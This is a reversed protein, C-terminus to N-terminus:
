MTHVNLLGFDFVKDQTIMKNTFDTAWNHKVAVYHAEDDTLIIITFVRTM